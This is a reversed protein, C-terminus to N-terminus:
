KVWWRVTLLKEADIAVQEIRYRGSGAHDGQLEQLDTTWSAAPLSPANPHIGLLRYVVPNAYHIHTARDVVIVAVPATVLVPQLTTLAMLTRRRREHQRVIGVTALVVVALLLLLGLLVLKLDFTYM